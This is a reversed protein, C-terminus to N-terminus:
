RPFCSKEGRQYAWVNGKQNEQLRLAVRRPGRLQYQPLDARVFGADTVQNKVFDVLQRHGLILGMLEPIQQATITAKVIARPAPCVLPNQGVIKVM